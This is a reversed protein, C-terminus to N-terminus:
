TTPKRIQMTTKQGAGRRTSTFSLEFRASISEARRAARALGIRMIATRRCTQNSSAMLKDREAYCDKRIGYTKCEQLKALMMYIRFPMSQRGIAWQAFRPAAMKLTQDQRETSSLNLRRIVIRFSRLMFLFSRLMSYNCDTKLKRM